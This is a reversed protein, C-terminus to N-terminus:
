VFKTFDSIVTHHIIYIGTGIIKSVLFIATPYEREKGIHKITSYNTESKVM